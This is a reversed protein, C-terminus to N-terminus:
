FRTDCFESKVNSQIIKAEQSGLNLIKYESVAAPIVFTEAYHIEMTRNNTVVKVKTGEVLNLIHCQNNMQVSIENDFEFRHVEYFHKPHTSLKVIKWNEGTNIVEQKSIYDSVVTDGQCDMNLNAVGREINLPRPKGDLDMRMWDYMKFTFIYPTSSIELVLNGTGSCHITGNPILFLDHKKASHIQIYDEVAMPKAESNSKELAKRFDEKKVGENFGLYVEAGPDADLIYYTEDQTFTEGFNDRIYGLTPHCQLSLNQGNITDLYDFRIPFETGFTDSAAGLIAKNDQFMLFDFSVELLNGNKSLVIGNEPVILEFSWAYNPVDQPLGKIKNKMWNGGWIGPEFWPRVRFANSSVEQLGNRFTEGSAWSFSSGFQGDVIYDIQNLLAQKHKNLAPWDIFYMRKYQQKKDKVFINGLNLLQHARACFQIENKPMDMYVIKGDWGSLAAGPGYLINLVGNETQIENLKELDFFDNLEGTFIKGFVPDDGGLFPTVMTEIDESSKYASTTSYIIHTVNNENLQQTIKKILDDWYAGLYGDIIVCGENPFEDVLSDIGTHIVGKSVEFAPYVEYSNNAQIDKTHLPMIYQETKRKASLTNQNKTLHIVAGLIAAKATGKTIHIKPTNSFCKEFNDKFLFYSKAISGGIIIADPNFKKAIVCLIEGLHQGYSEFIKNAEQSASAKEAIEKVNSISKNFVESYADLFWKTSIWDEVKKNKFPLNYVNGQNPINPDDTVVKGNRTFGSGIGTGLTVGIVKHNMFDNNYTEGLVFSDADNFFSIEDPNVLIGKLNSQLFLKINVGFLSDYKNLGYIQSIGNDYDFPGPISVGLGYVPKHFKAVCETISLLLQNLINQASMKSNVPHRELTEELLCTEKTDVIGTAFHTGGIDIGLYYRKNNINTIM